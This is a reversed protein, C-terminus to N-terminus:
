RTYASLATFTQLYEYVYSLIPLSNIYTVRWFKLHAVALRLRKIVGGM